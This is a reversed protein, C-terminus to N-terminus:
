IVENMNPSAKAAPQVGHTPATNALMNVKAASDALFANYRKIEYENPNVRGKRIVPNNTDLICSNMVWCSFANDYILITNPIKSTMSPIITKVLVRLKIEFKVGNCFM